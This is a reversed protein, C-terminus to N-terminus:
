YYGYTMINLVKANTKPVLYYGMYDEDDGVQFVGFGLQDGQLSYEVSSVSYDKLLCIIGYRKGLRMVKHNGVLIPIIWIRVM